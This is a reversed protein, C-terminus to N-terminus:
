TGGVRMAPVLLCNGNVLMSFHKKTLAVCDDMPVTEPEGLRWMSLTVPSTTGRAKLMDDYTPSTLVCSVIVRQGRIRPPSSM